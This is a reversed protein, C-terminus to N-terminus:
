LILVVLHAINQSAYGKNTDRRSREKRGKMPLDELNKQNIRIYAFMYM